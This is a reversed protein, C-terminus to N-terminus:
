YAERYLAVIDTKSPTRPNTLITEDKLASDALAPIDELKVGLDGLRTPMGVKAFFKRVSDIALNRYEMQRMQSLAHNDTARCIAKYKDGTFCANYKMVYPLLVGCCVGHQIHYFGGLPHAMAHCLGLGANSFAIGAIYQAEAMVTRAEFDGDLSAVLSGCIREIATRAYMDTCCWGRSSCLAEVAHTFADVGTAARLERPMSEMMCPDVVAIDPVSSPNSSIFKRRNEEDTIVVAQTVETATGATTPIAFIRVSPNKSRINGEMSRVDEYEPNTAIVSVAKATDMPSGGGIAIIYDAGSNKYTNLCHLVNTITPNPVIDSFIEYDLEAADLMDTVRAAIGHEVLFKDTVVFGKKMGRMRIEEPLQRVADSGFLLYKNSVVVRLDM